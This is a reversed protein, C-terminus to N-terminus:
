VIEDDSVYATIGSPTYSGAALNPNGAGITVPCAEPNLWIGGQTEFRWTDFIQEKGDVSKCGIQYFVDYKVGALTPSNITYRTQQINGAYFIPTDSHRNKTKFAIASRSIALTTVNTIGGAAFNFLDFNVDLANARAIAERSAGDTAGVRALTNQYEVFMRGNDLYFVNNYKNRIMQLNMLTPLQFGSNSGFTGYHAAPVVTHNKAVDFNFPAPAINVSSFAKAKALYTQAWYEDLQKLCKAIGRAVVEDRDYTNTRLKERNVSFGVKKCLDYEYTKGTTELEPEELTCNTECDEVEVDCAKVWNVVVQNDKEPNDLERFRATQKAIGIQAAAANPIFDANMASDSWMREAKLKIALLQSPSFDGAAM